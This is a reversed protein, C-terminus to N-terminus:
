TTSRDRQAKAGKATATRSEHQTIKLSPLLGFRAQVACGDRSAQRCLRMVGINAYVVVGSTVAAPIAAIVVSM